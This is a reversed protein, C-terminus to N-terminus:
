IDQAVLVSAEVTSSSLRASDRRAIKGATSFNRESEASSESIVFIQQVLKSMLPSQCSNKGWWHTSSLTVARHLPQTHKTHVLSVIM